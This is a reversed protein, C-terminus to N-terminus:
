ADDTERIVVEEVGVCMNVLENERMRERESESEGEREGEM